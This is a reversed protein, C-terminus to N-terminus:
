MFYTMDKRLNHTIIHMRSIHSFKFGKKNCDSILKMIFNKWDCVTNNNFLKSTIGTLYNDFHFNFQGKITNKEFRKNHEKTFKNYINDVDEIDINEFAEVYDYSQSLYQHKGTQIHKKVSKLLMSKDCINCHYYYTM